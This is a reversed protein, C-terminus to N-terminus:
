CASYMKNWPTTSREYSKGSTRLVLVFLNLVCINHEGKKREEEGGRARNERATLESLFLVNEVNWVNQNSLTSAAPRM